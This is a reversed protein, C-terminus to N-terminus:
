DINQWDIQSPNLALAVAGYLVIDSGLPTLLIKPIRNVAYDEVHKKIPDMVLKPNNLAISGGVTILSPDYIDIINAFGIANLRGIEEVIYLSLEDGEKAAKFIVETTLNSFDGKILKFLLSKEVEVRNVNEM